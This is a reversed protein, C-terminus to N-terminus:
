FINPVELSLSSECPDIIGVKFPAEVFQDPYEDFYAKVKLQYLGKYSTEETYPVVFASEFLVFINENVASGDNMFVEVVPSGCSLPTNKEILSDKTWDYRLEPDRLFYNKDVFVPPKAM